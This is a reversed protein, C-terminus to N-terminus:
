PGDMEPMSYDLLILRYMSAEGRYTLELREQIM